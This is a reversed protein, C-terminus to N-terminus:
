VKFLKELAAASSAPEETEETVVEAVEPAKEAEKVEPVQGGSVASEIDSGYSEDGLLERLKRLVITKEQLKNLRRKLDGSPKRVHMFNCHGGRSCTDTEHARCNAEHFSSVPSLECHVPRAGFWEGNLQHVSYLAVDPDSYRVYVNGNLHDNDNECVVVASVEGIAAFHVYADEYFVDFAEQLQKQTLDDGENKDLKPNQYLNPLLITHSSVPKIHNRSCKEGHRCAGIKTYFDCTGRNGSNMTLPNSFWYFSCSFSMALFRARVTRVAQTFAGNQLRHGYVPPM